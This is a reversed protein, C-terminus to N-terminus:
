HPVSPEAPPLAGVLLALELLLRDRPDALNRGTREAVQALRYAVTNRHIGLRAAVESASGYELYAALTQLLEGTREDDELLPGLVRRRFAETEPHGWLLYLLAFPGTDDLSDFRVVPGPLAGARVLGALFRAQHLGEPTARLRGIPRSLVLFWDARETAEGRATAGLRLSGGVTRRGLSAARSVASDAEEPVLLFALEEGLVTSRERARPELLQRVAEERQETSDGGLLAVVVPENTDLGLRQAAHPLVSESLRGLLLDAVLQSIPAPRAGRGEQALLSACLGAVLSLVLRDRETASSGPALLSLYALRGGVSIATLLREDNGEPLARVSPHSRAHALATPAAAVPADGGSALVRGESDQLVLSRGSALAAAQLVAEPGGTLAARSLDRTLETSLRFLARRQETLLRNLNSELDLPIPGPFLLLPLSGVPEDFLNPETVLAAVPADALTELLEEADAMGGAQIERLIRGSLVILEDGRLPPLFPPAARVSVAWSVPRDLVAEESAGPPCLITFRRDWRCLDRLLLEAM